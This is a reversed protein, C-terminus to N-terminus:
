PGSGDTRTTRLTTEEPSREATASATGSTSSATGPMTRARGRADRLRKERPEVRADVEIREGAKCRVCRRRAGVVRARADDARIDDHREVPGADHRAGHRKVDLDHRARADVAAGHEEEGATGALARRVHEAEPGRRFDREVVVEEGAVREDRVVVAAGAVRAQEVTRRQLGRVCGVGLARRGRRARVCDAWRAVEIRRGSVRLIEVGDPLCEAEVLDREVADGVARLERHRIRERMRIM